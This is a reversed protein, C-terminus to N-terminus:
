SFICQMYLMLLLLVFLFIAAIFHNQFNKLSFPVLRFKVCVMGLDNLKIFSFESKRKEEDDLNRHWTLPPPQWCEVK